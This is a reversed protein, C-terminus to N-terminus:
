LAMVKPTYSGSPSFDETAELVAKPDVKNEGSYSDGIPKLFPLGKLGSVTVMVMECSTVYLSMWGWSLLASGPAVSM